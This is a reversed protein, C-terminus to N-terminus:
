EHKMAEKISTLVINEMLNDEARIMELMIEKKKGSLVYSEGIDEMDQAPVNPIELLRIDNIKIMPKNTDSVILSLLNRVYSTNLYATLYKANMLENNTIRIAACFSPILLGEESEMVYAADYPTSLKIVVDGKRTYKDSKVDKELIAEGLNNKLIVGSNIAKPMLVPVSTGDNNKSIVRTLIQGGVIEAVSNLKISEKGKIIMESM